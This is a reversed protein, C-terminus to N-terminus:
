LLNKSVMKFFHNIELVRTVRNDFIYFFHNAATIRGEVTGHIGTRKAPVQFKNREAAMGAETRGAAVHVGNVPSSRHSKFEDMNRVAMTEKGNGSLQTREEEIVAREKGAEKRRDITNKRAHEM